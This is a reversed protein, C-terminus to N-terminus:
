FTASVDLVYAKDCRNTHMGEFTQTFGFKDYLRVAEVLVSATELYIKSFGLSKATEIMRRLTIAGFGKGRLERSFYMKRLEITTEDIPFLGVTGLIEGDDNELVEFVGGREFYNNELDSLDADTGLPEPTLKYEELVSFVLLKVKECDNNNASRFTIDSIKM